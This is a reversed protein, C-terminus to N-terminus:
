QEEVIVVGGQIIVRKDNDIIMNVEKTSSSLDIKGHWSRIPAGSYSYVTVVRQLGGKIDANLNKLLRDRPGSMLFPRLLPGFVLVGFFVIILFCGIWIGIKLVKEAISDRM